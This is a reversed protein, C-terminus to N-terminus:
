GADAKSQIEALVAKADKGQALQGVLSKFAANTAAWNPNTSPYFQASPLVELFPLLDEDGSMAASGSETTPLFKEATVWPVYQDASYFFDFFKTIAAQKSEDNKFAMLHDAVGLTFPEGDVTPIPNVSYNMEPNGEAIQGVTPPLGIIMGIKGQVFVDMLPSRDTAGADPQTAGAEVMKQIFEAGELNAPTDIEIKSADGFGGGAGYFWIASEAQAEESGLPLGYGAVGDGLASVKTAAELLEDWTAPIETVGAQELLDENVFLARASALLPAGYQVSEVSSSAVFSEQFDALTDPSVVDEIPYLLEDDAFGAFPGGNMIDPAKNGQVKTTVVDNLNDWSQVELQVKIDTNEAEFDAIVTEWLGQTNDSYSPVLLNLTTQGDSGTSEPGSAFGCGALSMAAVAAVATIGGRRLAKKM